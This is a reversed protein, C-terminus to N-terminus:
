RGHPRRWADANAPSLRYRHAPGIAQWAAPHRPSCSRGARRLEPEYPFASHLSLLLVILLLNVRLVSPSVWTTTVRRNAAGGSATYRAWVSGFSIWFHSTPGPSTTSAPM